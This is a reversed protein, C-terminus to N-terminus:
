GPSLVAPSIPATARAPAIRAGLHDSLAAEIDAQNWRSTVRGGHMVRAGRGYQAGLTAAGLLSLGSRDLRASGAGPLQPAGGPPPRKARGQDRLAPTRLALCEIGGSEGRRGCLKPRRRGTRWLSRCGCLAAQAGPAARLRPRKRVDRLSHGGVGRPYSSRSPPTPSPRLRSRPARGLPPAPA